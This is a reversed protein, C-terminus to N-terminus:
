ASGDPRDVSGLISTVESEPLPRTSNGRVLAITRRMQDFYATCAECALLHLWAPIRRHWPMDRELYDTVLEAM